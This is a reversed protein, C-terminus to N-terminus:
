TTKRSKKTSLSDGFVIKIVEDLHSVFHFRIKEKVGDPIKQLDKRNQEPLIIDTVGYRAGAMVKERIGGVPIIKGRLTIEGTMAISQKVPKGSVASFLAVVMAVGASPGDKPVAGEPVHIHVSKKPFKIKSRVYTLAARASEKMVDGLHGTLVLGEDGDYLMVEVKLIEGGSPTWALGTAVGVEEGQVEEFELFEPPGLLEEIQKEDIQNRVGDKRLFYNLAYKRLVSVVKRELERVGAEKTYNRIIKLIANDTIQVDIKGDFGLERKAKPIFFHKAIHLKDFETYGPIRIVEMRDLLAPPITDTINATCIFLVRSLDFPISIYHDLFSHNQEPDLVELLASAPDGRFDVGLKDIEDLMFVPNRSGAQKMGMMIRGPMAGIYTRRHGRIEADDRVGGLSVRVFKRGLAKAISKGLSTKGVGPPGVFLLILGKPIEGKLKSISIFELIREKVDDLDWHDEDLIKKAREVDLNDQTEENWPLALVEDIWNRIVVYEPSEKPISELRSIQELVEKKAREPLSEAKERLEEIEDKKGELARLEKKLENIQEQIMRIRQMKDFSHRVKESIQKQLKLVETERILISIIKKLREGQDFTEILEKAQERRLPLNSAIIDAVKGPEDLMRFASIVEPPPQIPLMSIYQMFLDKATRMLAEVEVSIVIPKKDEFVRVRALIPPVEKVFELIQARSLGALLLRLENEVRAYRMIFCVTGIKAINSPVPPKSTDELLTCFLVRTTELAHEVTKQLEPSVVTVPVVAWPFVYTDQLPLVAIPVDEKIKSLDFPLLTPFGFSEKKEESVNGGSEGKGM